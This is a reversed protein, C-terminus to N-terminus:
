VSFTRTYITGFIMPLSLAFMDANRAGRSDFRTTARHFDDNIYVPYLARNTKTAM